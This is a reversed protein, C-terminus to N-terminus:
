LVEDIIDHLHKLELIADEALMYVEDQLTVNQIRKLKNLIVLMSKACAKKAPITKPRGRRNKQEEEDDEEVESTRGGNLPIPPIEFRPSPINEEETTNEEDNQNVPNENNM